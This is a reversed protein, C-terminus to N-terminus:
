HCWWMLYRVKWRVFHLEPHRHGCHEQAPRFHYLSRRHGTDRAIENNLDLLYRPQTRCATGECSVKKMRMWTRTSDRCRWARPIFTEEEVARTVRANLAEKRNNWLALLITQIDARSGRIEFIKCFWRMDAKKRKELHRFCYLCGDYQTHGEELFLDEVM